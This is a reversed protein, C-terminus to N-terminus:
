RQAHVHVERSVQDDRTGAASEPAAALGPRAGSAATQNPVSGAVGGSMSM